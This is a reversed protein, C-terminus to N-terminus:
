WQFGTDWANKHGTIYSCLGELSYRTCGPITSDGNRQDMMVEAVYALDEGIMETSWERGDGSDWTVMKKTNGKEHEHSRTRLCHRKPVRECSGLRNLLIMHRPLVCCAREHM